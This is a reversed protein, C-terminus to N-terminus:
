TAQVNLICQSIAQRAIGFPKFGGGGELCIGRTLSMPFPVTFFLIM